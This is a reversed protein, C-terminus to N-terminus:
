AKDDTSDKKFDSRKSSFTTHGSADIEWGHDDLHVVRDPLFITRPTRAYRFPVTGAPTNFIGTVIEASRDTYRMTWQQVIAWRALPKVSM